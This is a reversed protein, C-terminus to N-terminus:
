KKQLSPPGKNMSPPGSAKGKKKKKGGAAPKKASAELEAALAVQLVCSLLNFRCNASNWEPAVEVIQCACRDRGLSGWRQVKVANGADAIAKQVAKIFKQDKGAILLAKTKQVDDHEV